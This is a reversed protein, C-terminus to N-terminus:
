EDLMKISKRTYYIGARYNGWVMVGIVLFLLLSACLSFAGTKRFVGGQTIMPLIIVVATLVSLIHHFFDKTQLLLWGRIGYFSRALARTRLEQVDTDELYEYDMSLSQRNLQEEDLIRTYDLKQNFWEAVRSHLIQFFLKITFAVATYFLLTEWNEGRYIGDVLLGTCLITIYPFIAELISLLFTCVVIKKERSAIEKFLLWIYKFDERNM